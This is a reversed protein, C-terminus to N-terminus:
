HWKAAKRGKSTAALPWKEAGPEIRLMEDIDPM